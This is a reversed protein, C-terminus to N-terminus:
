FDFHKGNAYLEAVWAVLSVKGEEEATEVAKKFSRDRDNGFVVHLRYAFLGTPDLAAEDLLSRQIRNRRETLSDRDDRLAGSRQEGLTITYHMLPTIKKKHEKESRWLLLLILGLGGALVTGSVALRGLGM